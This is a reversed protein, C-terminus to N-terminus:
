QYEETTLNLVDDPGEGLEEVDSGTDSYVDDADDAYPADPVVDWDNEINGLLEEVKPDSPVNLPFEKEPDSDQIFTLYANRKSYNIEEEPDPLYELEAAKFWQEFHSIDHLECSELTKVNITKEKGDFLITICKISYIAKYGKSGEGGEPVNGYMCFTPADLFLGLERQDIAYEDGYLAIGIMGHKEISEVDYYEYRNKKGNTTEIERQIEWVKHSNDSVDKLLGLTAVKCGVGFNSYLSDAIARHDGNVSTDAGTVAQASAAAGLSSPGGMNPSNGGASVPLSSM